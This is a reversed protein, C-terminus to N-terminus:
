VPNGDPSCSKRYVIEGSVVTVQVQYTDDLLVFDADMGEQIRGKRDAIGLLDAPNSSLLPIIEGPSRGTFALLNRFAQAMTLTSGARVGSSVLRADGDVVVVDNVGLQYNGDPLGAAMISDTIAAVRNLGKCKILMRVTGPHLHRGDCIAECYCDSELAAGMLGPRHQHFLIMGNFTHTIARAGSEIAEMSLEYSAGSHGIAVPIDGAIKKLMPMVGAVEPALTIYRISGEAIERYHNLLDEDGERLLDRPMSGRYEESLFPGELHAGLLQAGYGRERSVDRIVALCRDTREISDTVISANWATVGQTAFFVAIKKLGEKDAANVDIGVAGHTHLDIFGPILMMGRGDLVEEGGASEMFAAEEGPCIREFRGDSIWLSGWFFDGERYIRVNKVLRRRM